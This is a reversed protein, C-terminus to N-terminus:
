KKYRKLLYVTGALVSLALILSVISTAIPKRAALLLYNTKEKKYPVGNISIISDTSVVVHTGGVKNSWKKNATPSTNKGRFLVTPDTMDLTEIDYTGDKNKISGVVFGVHGYKKGPQADYRLASGPIFQKIPIWNKNRPYLTGLRRRYTSYWAFGSCDTEGAASKDIMYADKTPDLNGGLKYKWNQREANWARRIYANLCATDLVIKEGDTSEVSIEPVDYQFIRQYASNAESIDNHSLGLNDQSNFIEINNM